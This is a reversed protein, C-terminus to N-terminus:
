VNCMHVIQFSFGYKDALFRPRPAEKDRDVAGSLCRSDTRRPADRCGDAPALRGFALGVSDRKLCRCGGRPVGYVTNGCVILIIHIKYININKDYLICVQRQIKSGNVM